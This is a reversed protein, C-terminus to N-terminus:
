ATIANFTAAPARLVAAGNTRHANALMNFFFRKPCNQFRSSM